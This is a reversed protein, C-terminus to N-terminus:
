SFIENYKIEEWFDEILEILNEVTPPKNHTSLIYLIPIDHKKCYEKKANDRIKIEELTNKFYAVEQFHQEGQYEILFQVKNNEDLVGFDFRLHYSSLPSLLDPYTLEKKYKYNLQQLAEAINKEGYSSKVCGCSKTKGNRLNM